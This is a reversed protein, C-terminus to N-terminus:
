ILRLLRSESFMRHPGRTLAGLLSFRGPALSGVPGNSLCTRHAGSGLGFRSAIISCNSGGRRTIINGGKLPTVRTHHRLTGVETVLAVPSFPGIVCSSTNVRLKLIRSSRSSETALVVVPIAPSVGQLRTGIRLKSVKPLGLSLAM